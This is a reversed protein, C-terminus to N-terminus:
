DPDWLGDRIETALEILDPDDPLEQECERVLELAEERRGLQAVARAHLLRVEVDAGLQVARRYHEEAGAPDDAIADLYHAIEEAPDPSTPAIEAAREYSRLADTLEYRADESSEIMNGRAIWLEASEPFERVAEEVLTLMEVTALDEEEAQWLEAIRDLYDDETM